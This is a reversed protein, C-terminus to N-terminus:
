PQPAPGDGAAPPPATRENGVPPAPQSLGELLARLAELEMGFGSWDGAKLREVARDYHSLALRARDGEPGAPSTRRLAEAGPTAIAAEKFLSALAAPLTEEMVVRDGYAAIVRKLEPLQGHEARLYLPSVYLISNEIPIVLLNGHLVRSGSQNWLTIQQSIETNQNIRAEIQFPGYVLKDKPFEYVILKGYDPPDCRAALWAIMNQRQNPVMPLMLFFQASAEGPLRMIAYYPAMTARDDGNPERPLQWLDERNYFVEPADMHYARYMRAQMLFLDEPYRIHRRLDPSMAELPKFLSPFIRRYTAIIPDSPDAVYLAVSGDYADIVAKVSNRIYNTTGDPSPRAYPFWDSTTYTDQIWFLRGDSVVVYPDHDQRLFPALEHLRERINRRFLIRSEDTVYASLLINPDDFYWAFLAKRASGGLPIGGSGEYTAYVNEVGKPYDFEPTSAKVIVYSETAQGFYIRPQRIAPGLSAVPPIDQLYLTPLGEASKQTVSSMVVGNGHTFLLHLNVWTQANSPLLAPELERASLMVQRYSGGLEYRDVDMDHFKYYTRIEQLQAYTDMLPEWDWLRINDITASNDRISQYSLGLEAPFPKVTVRRLGYAEQTLAINRAIYPAELQLENPKVSFRQFLAPFVLSLIFSSGFVLVAATAPLRFRRVRINVWSLLAAASALGVLAWLVPLGVHTDTYGAGVVVGNDGYLLLYRDLVYSWAKVAFFLGLLASGHAVVAPSIVRSRADLILHGHAWYVGGAIVAGLVLTILMWNRIAVYAPLSFLYFGIDRDFLPDNQGYPTQAIFRLALDWNGAEGAAILASLAVATLAVLRRPTLRLFSGGPLGPLPPITAASWSSAPPLPAPRRSFRLAFIGSAWLCLASGAFSAACLAAKARFITWFVDRYGISSFWLLDVLFDGVRALAVLCLLIVLGAVALTRRRM